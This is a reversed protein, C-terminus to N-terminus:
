LSGDELSPPDSICSTGAMEGLISGGPNGSSEEKAVGSGYM